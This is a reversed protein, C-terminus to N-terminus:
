RRLLALAARYGALRARHLAFVTGAYGFAGVGVLVVLRWHPALTKAGPVACVFEDAILSLSISVPLTIPAPGDRLPLLYRPLDARSSQVASFSAPTVRGVHSTLRNVPILALTWGITYAGLAAKGLVRGVVAFDANSLLFWSVRTVVLHGGLQVPAAIASVPFPWAIQHPRVWVLGAASEITAAISAVVLTWHRWGYLALLLVVIAQLISEAGDVLALDRCRLDRTLLGRPVVQVARCLLTLSLVALAAGAAPEDFFRGVSPSAFAGATALITGLLVSFGGLRAITPESLDRHQVIATSVGFENVLQILGLAATAMGVIGYDEPRLVHAVVLPVGM